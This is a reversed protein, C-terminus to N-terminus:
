CDPHVRGRTIEAERTTVPCEAYAAMVAYFRAPDGAVASFIQLMGPVMARYTSVSLLKANNLGSEMWAGYGDAASVAQRQRYELRLAEMLASKAARKEADALNGAYLDRLLDQYKLVLDVFADEEALQRAHAEWASPEHRAYWRRVGIIAVTDAFAENFETDGPIYIKQHALEHLILRALEFDNRTLMTDLVPDRFWGLTSYASVGGVFVDDGNARLHDAFKAASRADFYGRYELCGVLFYCWHRLTMSFEPAAFVNWVVHSRGTAVYRRYSGNDPLLLETGAFELVDQVLRLKDRVSAPTDTDAIVAAVPRQASMLALQGRAAQAYYGLTSCGACGLAM